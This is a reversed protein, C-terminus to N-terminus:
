FYGSQVNLYVASSSNLSLFLHQCIVLSYKGPIHCKKACNICPCPGPKEQAPVLIEKPLATEKKKELEKKKESSSSNPKRKRSVEQDDGKRLFQSAVSRINAVSEKYAPHNAKHDDLKLVAQALIRKAEALTLKPEAPQLDKMKTM